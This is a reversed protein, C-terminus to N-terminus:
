AAPRYCLPAVIRVQGAAVPMLWHPIMGGLLILSSGAELRMLVPGRDPSRRIESLRERTRDPYLCLMGSPGASLPLREDVCTIIALDCVDVDRHLGLYQGPRRYYSYSGQRGSPTWALGTIRELTELVHPALYFAQLAPGGPAWDLWRDPDGRRTDEDRPELVRATEATEGRALAELRMAAITEADALRALAAGGYRMLESSALRESVDVSLSPAGLATLSPM